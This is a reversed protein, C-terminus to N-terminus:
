FSWNVLPLIPLSEKSKIVNILGIQLGSRMRETINVFGLQFGSFDDAVNLLGWQFGTSGAGARNYFATQVGQMNGGTMSALWSNQWGTFDGDVVSVGNWSLGTFNGTNHGVLSLDLGKMSANKGYILSLRFAGIDETESTLQIPNVLALNVPSEALATGAALILLAALLFRPM